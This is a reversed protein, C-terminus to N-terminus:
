EEGTYKCGIMEECETKKNHLNGCDTASDSASECREVGGVEYWDCANDTKECEEEQNDLTRCDDEDPICNFQVGGDGCDLSGTLSPRVLEHRCNVEIEEQDGDGDRDEEITWSKECYTYTDQSTIALRCATVIDGVSSTGGFINIKEWLNEWGMTFGLILLVLVVIGLVILILTGISLDQGKKNKVMKEM